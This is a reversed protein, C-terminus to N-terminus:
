CARRGSTRRCTVVGTRAAVNFLSLLCRLRDRPLRMIKAGDRVTCFISARVDVSAGAALRSIARSGTYSNRVLRRALRMLM